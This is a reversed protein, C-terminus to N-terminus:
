NTWGTWSPMPFQWKMAAPVAQEGAPDCATDGVKAVAEPEQVALEVQAVDRLRVSGGAPLPVIMNAVDEVSQFKADTSVTLTKSGNDIEGGPYLLNQAALIQSIYSNFAGARCRPYRGAACRNARDRRRQSGCQGVGDIRELAPVVTDEALRQLSALNDGSLAIMATPMMDSINM